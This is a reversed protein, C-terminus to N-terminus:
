FPQISTYPRIPNHDFRELTHSEDSEPRFSMNWDQFVVYAFQIAHPVQTM